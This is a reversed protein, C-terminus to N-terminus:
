ERAREKSGLILYDRDAVNMPATTNRWLYALSGITVWFVVIALEFNGLRGPSGPTLMLLLLAIATAIGAYIALVAARYPRDLDPYSSRLRLTSMCTVTMALTFSFSSTNVIPILALKGVFPGILSIIGVFMLANQPTHHVPHVGAFWHPLMGGRGMSFLLRSSAIYVGNLTSILGLLACFLVLKAAWTYGFAAEFISSTTMPLLASETWPMSIAVSFIIVVYFLAGCVISTIIAIGLKRLPVATGVEEAAQPITDFGAMFFPVVVLVSVTASIAAVVSHDGPSHIAFLPQLNGLEGKLIAAGCFVLTCALMVVVIAVQVRASDKAGHWNAWILFAGVCFGPLITSLSVRERGFGFDIHYLTESRLQPALSEFIPGMAITEFPAVSVYALTLVWGTVFALQPGFAKYAFSLEGGAVPLASTLEAYCMGIPLLLIGGILFALIAGLPGGELLWQGSYVVWGIGIIVGVGLAIYTRFPIVRELSERHPMGSKQKASLVIPELLIGAL